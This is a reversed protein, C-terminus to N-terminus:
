LSRANKEEECGNRNSFLGVILDFILRILVFTIILSNRSFNLSIILRNPFSSFGSAVFTSFVFLFNAVEGNTLTCFGTTLHQESLVDVTKTRFGVPSQRLHPLHGSLSTLCLLVVCAVCCM